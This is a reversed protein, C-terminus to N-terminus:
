LLPSNSIISIKPYLFTQRISFLSVSIISDFSEFFSVNFSNESLELVIRYDNIFTNRYDICDFRM